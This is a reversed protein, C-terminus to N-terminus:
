HYVAGNRQKYREVLEARTMRELPYSDLNEWGHYDGVISWARARERPDSSTFLAVLEARTTDSFRALMDLDDAFWVAYDPHFRNDSLIGNVYTCNELVARWVTYTCDDADSDPEVRELEPAYVGTRDRYIFLGGYDLPNVDGVNAVFEWDPQSM